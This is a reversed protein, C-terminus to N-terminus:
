CGLMIGLGDTLVRQWTQALTEGKCKDLDYLLAEADYHFESAVWPEAANEDASWSCTLPAIRGGKPHPGWGRKWPTPDKDIPWADHGDFPVTSLLYRRRRM